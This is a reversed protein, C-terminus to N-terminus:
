GPRTGFLDEPWEADWDLLREAPPFASPPDDTFWAFELGSLYGDKVWVLIEGELAEETGVLTRVPIPGDRVPSAQPSGRVALDLLTPIGGIHASALERAKL